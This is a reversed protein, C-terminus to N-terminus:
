IVFSNSFSFIFSSLPFSKKKRKRSCFARAVVFPSFPLVLFFVRLDSCAYLAIRRAENENKENQEQQLWQCILWISFPRLFHSFLHKKQQQCRLFQLLFRSCFVSCLSCFFVILKFLSFLRVSSDIEIRLCIEISKKKNWNTRENWVWENWKQKNREITKLFTSIKVRCKHIAKKQRM